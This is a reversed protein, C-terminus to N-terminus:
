SYVELEYIEDRLDRGDSAVVRADTYANPGNRRVIADQQRGLCALAAELTRHKHDCGHCIDGRTGYWVASM